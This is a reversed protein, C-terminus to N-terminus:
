DSKMNKSDPKYVDSKMIESLLCNFQNSESTGFKKPAFGFKIIIVNSKIINM